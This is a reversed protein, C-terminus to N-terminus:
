LAQSTSPTSEHDGERNCKMPATPVYGISAPRCRACSIACPVSLRDRLGSGTLWGAASGGTHSSTVRRRCHSAHRPAVSDNGRLACGGRRPTPCRMRRASVPGLLQPPSGGPRPLCRGRPLMPLRPVSRQAAAPADGPARMPVRALANHLM